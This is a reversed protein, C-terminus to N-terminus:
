YGNKEIGGDVKHARVEWGSNGGGTGEVEEEMEEGQGKTSVMM